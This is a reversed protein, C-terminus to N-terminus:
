LNSIQSRQLIKDMRQQYLIQHKYRTTPPSTNGTHAIACCQHRKLTKSIARKSLTEFKHKTLFIPLDDEDLNFSIINLTTLRLSSRMTLDGQLLSHQSLFQIWFQNSFSNKCYFRATFLYAVSVSISSSLCITILQVSIMSATISEKCVHDLNPCPHANHNSTCWKQLNIYALFIIIQRWYCHCFSICYKLIM